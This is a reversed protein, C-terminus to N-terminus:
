IADTRREVIGSQSIPRDQRWSYRMFSRGDTARHKHFARDLELEFLLDDDPVVDNHAAVARRRLEAGSVLSARGGLM